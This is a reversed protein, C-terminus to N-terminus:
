TRGAATASSPHFAPPPYDEEALTKQRAANARWMRKQRSGIPYRRRQEGGRAEREEEEEGGEHRIAEKEGQGKGEGHEEQDTTTTQPIGPDRRGLVKTREGDVGRITVFARGDEEKKTEGDKKWVLKEGRIDGELRGLKTEWMAITNRQEQCQNYERRPFHEGFKGLLFGYAGLLRQLFNRIDTHLIHRQTSRRRWESYQLHSRLNRIGLETGRLVGNLTRWDDQGLRFGIDLFLELTRIDPTELSDIMMRCLKSAHALVNPNNIDRKCTSLAIRFTKAEVSGQGRRRRGGGGGEERKVARREGSPVPPGVGLGDKMEQVLAVTDRSARQVRLLRLYMHYNEKDPSLNYPDGTLLGWYDQAASINHLRTCANIVLSLTSLGPKVYAAPNLGSSPVFDFEQGPVFDDDVAAFPGHEPDSVPVADTTERETENGDYAPPPLPLPEMKPAHRLKGPALPPSKRRIGMTQEILSLVDDIDKPVESFVLLRGMSCVLDEDIMIDGERWREIIDAWIRRGQLVSKQRRDAKEDENLDDRYANDQAIRAIANFITTFTAKDPASPGKSPLRAAVGWLADLDGARACVKLVANTHIIRPKVPCNPAYMSHYLSLARELATSYQPVSGLGRLLITFTYSDPLQGRKKM